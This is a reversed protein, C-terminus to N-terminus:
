ILPSHRRGSYNGSFTPWQSPDASGQLLQEFTPGSAPDQRAALWVSSPLALLAAIVVLRIVQM